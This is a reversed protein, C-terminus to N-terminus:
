SHTHNGPICLSKPKTSARPTTCSYTPRGKGALATVLPLFYLIGNPLYKCTTWTLLCISLMEHIVAWTHNINMRESVWTSLAETRSVFNSSTLSPFPAHRNQVSIQHREVSISFHMFVAMLKWILFLKIWEM